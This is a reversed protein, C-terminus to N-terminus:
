HAREWQGVPPHPLPCVAQSGCSDARDWPFRRHTGRKSPWRSRASGMRTIFQLLGMHGRLVSSSSFPKWSPDLAALVLVNSCVSFCSPTPNALHRLRLLPGPWWWCLTPWGQHGLRLHCSAVHSREMCTGSGLPPAPPWWCQGRRGEGPHSVRGSTSCPSPQLLHSFYLCLPSLTFVPKGPFTFSIYGHILFFFFFVLSLFFFLQALEQAQEIM